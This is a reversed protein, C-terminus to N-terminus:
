RTWCVRGPMWWPPAASSSLALRFGIDNNRNGRENANRYAARCNRADNIWSGGRM